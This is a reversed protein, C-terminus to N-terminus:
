VRGRKMLIELVFKASDSASKTLDGQADLLKSFSDQREKTHKDMEMVVEELNEIKKENDEILEILSQTLEATTNIIESLKRLIKKAFEKKGENTQIDIDKLNEWVKEFYSDFDPIPIKNEEM